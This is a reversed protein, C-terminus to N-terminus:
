FCHLNKLFCMKDTFLTKNTYKMLVLFHGTPKKWGKDVSKGLNNMSKCVNQATEWQKVANRQCEHTSLEYICENTNRSYLMFISFKLLFDYLDFPRKTSLM